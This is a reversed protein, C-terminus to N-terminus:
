VYRLECKKENDIYPTCNRAFSFITVHFNRVHFIQSRFYRSNRYMCTGLLEKLESKLTTFSVHLPYGTRTQSHLLSKLKETAWASLLLKLILYSNDAVKLKKGTRTFHGDEAPARWMYMYGLNMCLCSDVVASLMSTHDRQRELAWNLWFSALWEVRLPSVKMQRM